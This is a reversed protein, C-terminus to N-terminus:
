SLLEAAAKGVEPDTLADRVEVLGDDFTMVGGARMRRRAEWAATEGMEVRLRALGEVDARDPVLRADPHDLIVRAIGAVTNPKLEDKAEPAHAFRSVVLDSAVQTLLLDDVDGPELTEPLRALFGLEALLRQAFGHITFIQARDFDTLAARIRAADERRVPEPRELLVALHDDVPETTGNTLATLTRALRRRVRGRLEATAARTFTVVLIRDLPTGDAVLRAVLAAITFTKGTGASA